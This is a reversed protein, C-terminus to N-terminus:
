YSMAELTTVDESDVPDVGDLLQLTDRTLDSREAHGAPSLDTMESDHGTVGLETALLPDLAAYRDVYSDAVEDVPTHPRTPQEATV